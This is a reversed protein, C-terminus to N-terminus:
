YVSWFDQGSVGEHDSGREADRVAPEGLVADAREEGSGGALRDAVTRNQISLPLFVEQGDIIVMNHTIPFKPNIRTYALGGDVVAGSEHQKYDHRFRSVIFCDGVRIAPYSASEISVANCVYPTGFHDFFFGMYHSHGLEKNPNEQYFVHLGERTPIDYYGVHKANYKDEIQKIVDSM